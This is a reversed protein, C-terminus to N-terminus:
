INLHSFLSAFRFLLIEWHPSVHTVETKFDRWFYSLPFPYRFQSLAKDNCGEFFHDATKTKWYIISFQFPRAFFPLYDIKGTEPIVSNSINQRLVLASTYCNYFSYNMYEFAISSSYKLIWTCIHMNFYNWIFHQHRKKIKNLFTFM